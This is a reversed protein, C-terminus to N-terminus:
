SRFYRDLSKLNSVKLLSTSINNIDDGLEPHQASLFRSVTNVKNAYDIVRALRRGVIKVM